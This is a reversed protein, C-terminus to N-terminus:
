IKAILFSAATLMEVCITVHAFTKMERPYIVLPLTALDNPLDMNFSKLFHSVTQWLSPAM